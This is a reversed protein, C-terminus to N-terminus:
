DKKVLPLMATRMTAVETDRYKEVYDIKVPASYAHGVLLPYRESLPKEVGWATFTADTPLYAYWPGGPGFRFLYRLTKGHTAELTDLRDDMYEPAGCTYVGLVLLTDASFGKLLKGVDYDNYHQNSERNVIYVGGCALLAADKPVRGMKPTMTFSFVVTRPSAVRREFFKALHNWYVGLRRTYGFEVHELRASFRAWDAHNLNAASELFREIFVGQSITLRRTCSYRIEAFFTCTASLAHRAPLDLHSWIVAWLEVSVREMPRLTAAARKREEDDDEIAELRTRFERAAAIVTTLRSITAGRTAPHVREVGGPADYANVAARLSAAADDIHSTYLKDHTRKAASM